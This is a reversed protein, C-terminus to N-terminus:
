RLTGWERVEITEEDQPYVCLSSGGTNHIFFGSNMGNGRIEITFDKKNDSAIMIKYGDLNNIENGDEDLLMIKM